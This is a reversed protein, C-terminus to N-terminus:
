EYQWYVIFKNTTDAEEYNYEVEWLDYRECLYGAAENMLSDMLLGKAQTYLDTSAFQFITSNAKSDIDEKMDNLLQKKDVTEYYMGHLKYYNLDGSDCVPYEYGEQIVHTSSLLTEDCCLYDYIMDRQLVPTEEEPIPDAWTVDVYYYKGNCEVINWGHAESGDENTATGLVYTCYVGSQNLLYQNARAYGACVTQKGVLASYLNQDDKVGDVYEVTNVLYEYAMKIKEYEDTLASLQSLIDTTATEIETEKATREELSYQYEVEVLTFGLEFSNSMGTGDTWFIEAFDYIVCNLISNVKNPDTGHVYIEEQHDMIGQYIERYTLQEQETLQSYYFKDEFVAADATVEEYPIFTELSCGSCLLLVFAVSVIGFWKKMRYYM